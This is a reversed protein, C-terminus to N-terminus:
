NPSFLPHPYPHRHSFPLQTPYAREIQQLLMSIMQELCRGQDQGRAGARERERMRAEGRVGMSRLLLSMLMLQQPDVVVAPPCPCSAAWTELVQNITWRISCSWGSLWLFFLFFAKSQFLKYAVTVSVDM